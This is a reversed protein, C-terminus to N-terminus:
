DEEDVPVALYARREGTEADVLQGTIMGADNIGRASRLHHPNGPALDNLDLMAGGHWLFARCDAFAADCSVGVAQGRANLGWAESHVHDEKLAPLPEMDGAGSWHFAGVFGSALGAFGVVEGRDNIALPTNWEETGLNGLNTLTGDTEWLVANRASVGGVAIGCDGSIGVVRGGNDLATASSVSDGAAPPLEELEGTRPDWRVARFQLVQTGAPPPTCTVDVVETEAWGAVQNRDNVDAAFSHTGGLAPLEYREGDIWAFGRCVHGSPEGPFFASCSWAEGLPDLEETEAIGTFAGARNTGRFVFASNPGGFTGLDHAERDIWLVARRTADGPLNSFGSVIGLNDVSRGESVRGGLSPLDLVLYRPPEKEEEEEAARGAAATLTTLVALLLLASVSLSRRETARRHRTNM